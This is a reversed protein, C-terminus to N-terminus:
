ATTASISLRICLWLNTRREANLVGLCSVRRRDTIMTFLDGHDCLDLIVFVFDGEEIMRHMTVVHRHASALQHLAIERRQFSRQRSDLSAKRLCKIAFRRQYGRASVDVGEYVTAYAGVGLVRVIQLRGRDIRYGVLDPNMTRTLPVFLRDLRL